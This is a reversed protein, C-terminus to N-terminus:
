FINMAGSALASRACNRVSNEDCSVDKEDASLQTQFIAKRSVLCEAVSVMVVFGHFDFCV